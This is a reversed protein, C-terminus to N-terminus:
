NSWLESEKFDSQFRPSLPKLMLKPALPRKTSYHPHNTQKCIMESVVSDLCSPIFFIIVFFFVLIIGALSFFFFLLFINHNLHRSLRGRNLSPFLSYFTCIFTMVFHFHSLHRTGRALNHPKDIVTFVKKKKCIMSVRGTSM